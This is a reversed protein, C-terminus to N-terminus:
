LVALHPYPHGPTPFRIHPVFSHNSPPGCDPRAFEEPNKRPSDTLRGGNKSPGPTGPPGSDHAPPAGPAGPTRAGADCSPGSAGKRPAHGWDGWAVNGVGEAALGVEGGLWAHAHDKQVPEVARATGHAEVHRLRHVGIDGGRPSEQGQGPSDDGAVPPLLPFLHPARQRGPRLVRNTDLDGAAERPARGRANSTAVVHPQHADILRHGRFPGCKSLGPEADTVDSEGASSAGAAGESPVHGGGLGLRPGGPGTKEAGLFGQASLPEDGGRDHRCARADGPASRLEAPSDNEGFPSTMRACLRHEAPRRSAAM